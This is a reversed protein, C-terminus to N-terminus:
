ADQEADCARSVTLFRELQEARGDLYRIEAVVQSIREPDLSGPDKQLDCCMELLQNRAHARALRLDALKHRCRERQYGTTYVEQGLISGLNM